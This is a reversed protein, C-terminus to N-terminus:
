SVPVPRISPIVWAPRQPQPIFRLKARVRDGEPHGM